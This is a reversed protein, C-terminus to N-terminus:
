QVAPYAYFAPGGPASTNSAAPDTAFITGSPKGTAAEDEYLVALSVRVGAPVCRESSVTVTPERFLDFLVHMRDDTVNDAESHLLM